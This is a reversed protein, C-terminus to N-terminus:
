HQKTKTIASRVIQKAPPTFILVFIESSGQGVVQAEAHLRSGQVDTQELWQPEEEACLPHAYIVEAHKVAARVYRM